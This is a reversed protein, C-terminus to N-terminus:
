DRGGAGEDNSQGKLREDGLSPAAKAKELEAELWEVYALLGARLGRTDRDDSDRLWEILVARSEKTVPIEAM